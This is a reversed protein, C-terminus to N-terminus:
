EYFIVVNSGDAVEVEQSLNRPSRAVPLSSPQENMIKRYEAKLKAKELAKESKGKEEKFM